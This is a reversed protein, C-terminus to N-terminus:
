VGCARMFQSKHFLSITLYCYPYFWKGETICTYRCQRRELDLETMDSHGEEIFRLGTHSSTVGMAGITQSCGRVIFQIYVSHVEVSEIM